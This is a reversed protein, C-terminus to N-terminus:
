QTTTTPKLRAAVYPPLEAVEVGLAAGDGILLGVLVQLALARVVGNSTLTHFEVMPALALYIGGLLPGMILFKGFVLGRRGLMDFILAVLYIGTALLIGSIALLWGQTGALGLRGMGFVVVLLVALGHTNVRVAALVGATLAGVTVCQFALERPDFVTGRFVLWGVAISGLLGAVFRISFAKLLPHAV